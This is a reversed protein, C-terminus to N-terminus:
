LIALLSEGIARSAIHFLRDLDTSFNEGGFQEARRLVKNVPEVLQLYFWALASCLREHTEFMLRTRRQTIGCQRLRRLM